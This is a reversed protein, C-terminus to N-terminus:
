KLYTDLWGFFERQWLISNQPKLIFHSEEPFYLLKSPIGMVQAATFAQMSESFPVRFDNAGTSILIPTDWNQVFLHPSFKYSAPKPNQWYPGGLDHNPFWLEETTGYESEFNFMGCHSIFAKFRKQHHGALWYVSYGGYSAGVAGLRAPDVFAKKKLGDIASLYDQQNLGGYDGAIQDEWAQGFTPVGRRNPAIVIYGNAAMLQMNWRFSFFQSVANQPGGECFLLAPYQKTSDFDPPYIVWSHLDKNDVTKVWFAEVKGMPIQDYINKNIFSIQTQQGSIPHIRFLETAMSMSMQTGVLQDGAAMLGTYDHDGTTLQSIKKSEVEISYVQFTGKVGSIFCISKGDSSWVMSAADQDFQETLYTKEKTALDIVFLREKDSEYGPTAMSSWCIHGGDPSFVPTKDYGPMGDSINETKNTALDYLYIDSNTSLADAKGKLKKSTYALLNGDPSWSIDSGDFYPAQPSDWKEGPMIDKGAPVEGDGMTTVFIHSFSYDHWYNWHRYMLDDIIRANALPLDPYIDQPTSDTKVEQTYFLNNGAPALEFSNIDGDVHSIQKRDEGDTNMMWVQSSGSEASLFLINKGDNTWRPNYESLITSTIQKLEGGALPLIYIEGNSKNTNADYRTITLVINKGDPSVKAEGLRGFKWLIEPTMKKGALEEQSLSNSFDPQPGTGTQDAKKTCSWVLSLILLLSVFQKSM